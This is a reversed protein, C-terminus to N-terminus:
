FDSASITRPLFWGMYCSICPPKTSPSGDASESPERYNARSTQPAALLIEVIPVSKRGTPFFLSRSSTLYLECVLFGVILLGSPVPTSIPSADPDSQFPPFSFFFALVAVNEAKSTTSRFATWSREGGLAGSRPELFLKQWPGVGFAQFAQKTERSVFFFPLGLFLRHGNVLALVSTSPLTELSQCNLHCLRLGVGCWM